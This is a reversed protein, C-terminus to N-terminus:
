DLDLQIVMLALAMKGDLTLHVFADLAALGSSSHESDVPSAHDALGVKRVFGKRAAVGAAVAVAILGAQTEDGVSYLAFLRRAELM